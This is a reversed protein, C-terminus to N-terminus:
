FLMLPLKGPYYLKIQQLLMLASKLETDTMYALPVLLIIVQGLNGIIHKKQNEQLTTNLYTFITQLTKAYNLQNPGSFLEKFLILFYLKWNAYKVFLHYFSAHYKQLITYLKMHLHHVILSMLYGIEQQVM